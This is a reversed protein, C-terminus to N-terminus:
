PSPDFTLSMWDKFNNKSGEGGNPSLTGGSQPPLGARRLGFPAPPHPPRRM